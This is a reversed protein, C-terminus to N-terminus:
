EALMIRDTARLEQYKQTGEEGLLVRLKETTKVTSALEALDTNQGEKFQMFIEEPTDGRQRQREALEQRAHLSQEFISRVEKVEKEELNMKEILQEHFNRTRQMWAETVIQYAAEDDIQHEEIKNATFVGDFDNIQASDPSDCGGIGILCGTALIVILKSMETYGKKTSRVAFLIADM